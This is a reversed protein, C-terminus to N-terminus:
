YNMKKKRYAYRGGIVAGAIPLLFLWQNIPLSGPNGPDEEGQDPQDDPQKQDFTSEEQKEGENPEDKDQNFFQAFSFSSALLFIYFLRRM